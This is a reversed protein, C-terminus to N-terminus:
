RVLVLRGAAAGDELRYHYVGPGVPRGSGDRGDWRWGGARDPSLRALLRGLTDHLTLIRTTEGPGACRLSITGTSPSPWVQLRLAIPDGPENVAVDPLFGFAWVRGTMDAVYINLPEASPAPSSLIPSGVAYTWDTSGDQHVCYFVGDDCGFAIVSDDEFCVPSSSVTGETSYAWDLTGAPTLALLSSGAGVYIRGDAGIAPSSRLVHQTPYAWLFQQLGSVAYLFGDYSGFYVVGAASVAPSCYRIAGGTAVRWRQIGSPWVAYFYQDDSGFFITGDPGIAPSCRVTDATAFTWRLSGNPYLAYLKGDDAGFYITGDAALNPSTKIGGGATYTWRLRGDPNLAYLLGDAGGVYISHDPAIAPTSYRFNGSGEFTWLTDGIPNFAFFQREGNGIYITGDAGVAPSAYLIEGATDFSWAVQADYPAGAPTSGTHQRDGHFMPWDLAGSPVGALLLVLAIWARIASSAGRPHLRVTTM